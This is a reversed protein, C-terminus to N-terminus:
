EENVVDLDAMLRPYKTKLTRMRENRDQDTASLGGGTTTKGAGGNASDEAVTVGTLSAKYADWQDAKAKLGTATEQATALETNATALASQATALANEAADAAAKAATLDANMAANGSAQADLRNQVEQAEGAFADFEEQTLKESVAKESNPFLAALAAALTKTPKLM